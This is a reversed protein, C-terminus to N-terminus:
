YQLIVDKALVQCILESLVFQSNGTRQENKFIYNQEKTPGRM